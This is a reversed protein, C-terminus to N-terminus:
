IRDSTRYPLKGMGIGPSPCNRPGSPDQFSERHGSTRHGLRSTRQPLRRHSGRESHCLFRRDADAPVRDIAIACRLRARYIGTAYALTQRAVRGPDSTPKNFFLGCTSQHQPGYDFVSPEDLVTPNFSPHRPPFGYHKGREIHLLEDFPNGNPLWTAGEQDTCFLDGRRNFAIGIPFRVGTCVTERVSFDPSVRQITGRESNLDYHGKGSDDVLYANAYNTTGLGFYLWGDPGIALGVADVNQVIEEWGKAVIIEEDSVDDGNKDVFFSVKGKSAVFV